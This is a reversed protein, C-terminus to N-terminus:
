SCMVSTRHCLADLEAPWLVRAAITSHSLTLLALWAATTLPGSLTATATTGGELSGGYM